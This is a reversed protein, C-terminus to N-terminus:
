GKEWGWRCVAMNHPRLGLVRIGQGPKPCRGNYPLAHRELFLFRCKGNVPSTEGEGVFLLLFCLLCAFLVCCVVLTVVCVVLMLMMMPLLLLPLGVAAVVGDVVAVAVVVAVVVGVGVVGVVVVVVSWGVLWCVLRGVPRDTLWCMLLGLSVFCVFVRGFLRVFVGVLM